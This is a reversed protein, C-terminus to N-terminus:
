WVACVARGLGADQTKDAAPPKTPYKLSSIKFSIFLYDTYLMIYTIADFRVFLQGTINKL